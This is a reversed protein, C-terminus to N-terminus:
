ALFESGIAGSAGAKNEVVFAQGMSEGMKQGLTRAVIDMSAGPPYPAVLRIPKAPYTQAGATLTLALLATATILTRLM